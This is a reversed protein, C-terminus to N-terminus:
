IKLLSLIRRKKEERLKSKGLGELPPFPFVGIKPSFLNEM